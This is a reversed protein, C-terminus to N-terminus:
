SLRWRRLFRYSETQEEELQFHNRCSICPLKYTMGRRLDKGHINDGAILATKTFVLHMRSSGDRLWLYRARLYCVAFSLARTPMASSFRASRSRLPNMVLSSPHWKAASCVGGRFSSSPHFSSSVILPGSIECTHTHTHRHSSKKRGKVEAQKIGLALFPSFACRKRRKEKRETEKKSRLSYKRGGRTRSVVRM